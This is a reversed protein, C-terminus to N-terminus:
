EENKEEELRTQGCGHTHLLTDSMCTYRIASYHLTISICLRLNRLVYIDFKGLVGRKKILFFM